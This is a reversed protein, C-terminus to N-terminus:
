ELGEPLARRVPLPLGNKAAAEDLKSFDVNTHLHFHVVKGAIEESKDLVRAGLDLYGLARKPDRIGAEVRELMLQHGDRTEILDEYVAKITGIRPRRDKAGKPRGFTNGKTFRGLADQGGRTPGSGRGQLRAQKRLVTRDGPPEGVGPKARAM